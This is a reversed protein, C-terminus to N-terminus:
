ISNFLNTYRQSLIKWSFKENILKISNKSFKQLLSNDSLLTVIKEALLDPSEPEVLLGNYQHKIVDVIGGVNSGIPPTGCAMAELTVVGLGETKGNVNISPIIFIDSKNYYYPLKGNPIKGLMNIHNNLGLEKILKILNNREPGDGIIDLNLYNIKKIVISMAQVLIKTGKWDILNGVSLIQKKVKKNKHIKKEFPFFKEQDVGMPILEIRRHPKYLIKEVLNQTYTSNVAIVDSYKCIFNAIYILIKSNKIVNIDSGHVSAIHKTGLILKAVAGVFGQPLLWHTNIINIKGKKLEYLTNLLLSILFFPFQIKALFSNKLSYRIGGSFHALCHYKIPYFYNFRKISIGEIIEFKKSGPFTPTLVKINDTKCIYRCLEYLFVGSSGGKKTPFSSTLLLVNKL